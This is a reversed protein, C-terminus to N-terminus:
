AYLVNVFGSDFTDVGGVTTLRIRDLVGALSKSGSTLVYAATNSLSLNGDAAWYNTAPDLLSLVITGHVVSAASSVPLGFGATYNTVTPTGGSGGSTGCGLYGSSEVGGSSGVQLLYNATGNTSLGAISITIKKAWAPISTFDVATGAATQKTAIRVGPASPNDASLLGYSVQSLGSDLTGSDNAVTVTTVAAFASSLVTAYKTGGSNVTRIRRGVQFRNRQDGAVSFSTASIYSPAGTYIVWEDISIGSPDNIGVVNDFTRLTVGSADTFVLKVAQGAPLWIPNATLGSTNLVIPNAQAVAGANDMYTAIPTTTGAAYTFIKGGSLPAGNADNQQENGLPSLYTTAM